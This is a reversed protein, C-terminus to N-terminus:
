IGLMWFDNAFYFLGVRIDELLVSKLKWLM